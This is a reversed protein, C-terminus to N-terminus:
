NLQTSAHPPLVSSLVYALMALGGSALLGGVWDINNWLDTFVSQTSAPPAPLLRTALVTVVILAGGSIYFGVRWGIREIMIGSAVLGVSFGLPQSLGLCAFGLNRTKGQPVVAAVLSVAAPLHLAMAIGQMARFIVLQTGTASFGCALTFVGLLLIGIMEVRRPGVVDAVSGAILLLSGATLGYVSSPWLYLSRPLFIERAITPLGININGNTFSALFNVASPLLITTAIRLNSPPDPGSPAESAVSVNSRSRQSFRSSADLEIPDGIVPSASAM